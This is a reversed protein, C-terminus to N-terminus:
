VSLPREKLLEDIVKGKTNLERKELNVRCTLEKKTEPKVAIQIKVRNEKPRGTISM